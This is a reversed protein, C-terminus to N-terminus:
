RSSNGVLVTNKNENKCAARRTCLFPITSLMGISPTCASLLPWAAEDQLVAGPTRGQGAEIDRGRAGPIRRSKLRSGSSNQNQRASPEFGGAGALCHSRVRERCCSRAALRADRTWTAIRARGILSAAVEVQEAVPIEQYAKKDWDFYM